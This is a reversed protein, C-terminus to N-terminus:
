LRRADAQFGRRSANAMIGIQQGMLGVKTQGTKKHMGLFDM